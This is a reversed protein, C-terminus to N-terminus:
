WQEGVDEDRMKRGRTKKAASFRRPSFADLKATTAAGDLILEALAKASAPAWLIGWCNHACNIFAGEYGPVAGIVPLADPACPRMCTQTKRPGGAGVSKSLGAFSKSAAAVRSQDTTVKAASELDGGPLLRSEDVYESGGCGCIYVEGTSRPYVELHCANEDEACFLAAPENAVADSAEFLLSVSKIGTMPVQLGEFWEEARVSWPGMAVVVVDCAIREIENSSEHRVDVGIVRNDEDCAVGISEAGIV